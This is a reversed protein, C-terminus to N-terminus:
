NSASIGRDFNGLHTGPLPDQVTRDKTFDTPFIEGRGLNTNPVWLTTLLPSWFHGIVGLQFGRLLEVYGGFSSQQTRDLTSPGFYRNPNAYDLALPGFNQDQGGPGSPNSSGANEFRSLAYAVQFSVARVVRNRYDVSQTLKMQLGNYLSRGISKLFPLPPANPNIRFLVDM